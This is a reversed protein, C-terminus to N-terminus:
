WGTFRVYLVPLGQMFAWFTVYTRNDSAIHMVELTDWPFIYLLLCKRTSYFYWVVWIDCKSLIKHIVEDYILKSVAPLLCKSVFEYEV